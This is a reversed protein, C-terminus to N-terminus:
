ADWRVKRPKGGRVLIVAYPSTLAQTVIAGRPPGEVKADIVATDSEITVGNAVVSWGGTPRSGALLFVVVSNEFDVQRPDGEGILESWLRRYDDDSAALVAKRGSDDLAYSGSAITSMEVDGAEGRAAACGASLMLVILLVASRM